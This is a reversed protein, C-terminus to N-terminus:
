INCFLVFDWVFFVAMCGHCTAINHRIQVTTQRITWCSNKFIIFSEMINKIVKLDKCYCLNTESYLQTKCGRFCSKKRFYRVCMLNLLKMLTQLWLLAPFKPFFKTWCKAYTLFQNNFFIGFKFFIGVFFIYTLWRWFHWILFTQCLIIGTPLVSYAIAVRQKGNSVSWARAM